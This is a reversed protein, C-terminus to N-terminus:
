IWPWESVNDIKHGTPFSLDATPSAGGLVPRTVSYLRRTPCLSLARPLASLRAARLAGPLVVGRSARVSSSLAARAVSSMPIRM